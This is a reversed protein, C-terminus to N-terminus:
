WSSCSRPWCCFSVRSEDFWVVKKVLEYRLTFSREGRAHQVAHSVEHAAVRSRRLRAVTMISRCFACRRHMRTTITASIPRRSASGNALGSRRASSTCTRKRTGPLDVRETGHRKLMHRVWWSPGFVVALLILLGLGALIPMANRGHRNRAKAALRADLRARDIVARAHTGTGILERDDRANVKFTIHRGDVGTVEAEATVDHGVPTAAVHRVDVALVSRARARISTVASPM